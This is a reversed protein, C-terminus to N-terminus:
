GGDQYEELLAELSGDPLVVDADILAILGTGAAEAGRRRAVPLGKGEDSLVRAGMREALAVTGDTSNGDVLILERPGARLISALNDELLHAANRAPVIVTVDRAVTRRRTAPEGAPQSHSLM